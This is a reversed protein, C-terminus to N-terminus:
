SRRRSESLLKMLQEAIVPKSIFANMGADFCATREELTAGATMACIYPRRGAPGLARIARTAELGDMEPMQVDMLIVDYQQRKVALVAEIGNGAVDARYGLTDLMRLAVKQNVANDEVLLIRLPAQKALTPDLRAPAAIPTSSTDAALVRLLTDHLARLKVPKYLSAAVQGGPQSEVKHGWTTLAIVTPPRPQSVMGAAAILATRTEEPLAWDLMVADFTGDALRAHAAAPSPATAAHLGLREAMPQVMRLVCGRPSIVIVRQGALAPSPLLQGATDTGKAPVTAVTFHFTAGRGVESEVDLAGGMLEVLRRSIALGLGTGGFRRTSSADGQAFPRFLRALLEPPIGPGTDQVTFRLQIAKDEVSAVEVGVTVAGAPTFKVANGVLNVLVQRLRTVDGVIALPVEPALWYALELDKQAAQVVFLDLAEEVCPMLEFPHQELELRGSEIKSFDLIDNIVALLADGSSRITEVYERQQVDLNTEQLLTTMGIVANMPTRIEHSMNAVFSSKARNAAEATEKAAQAEEFLRANEIAIAAQDAFALLRDANQPSFFHPQASSVALLGILRGKRRIPAGLWSRIWASTDHYRWEPDAETDPIIVPQGTRVIRAFGVYEDVSFVMERLSAPDPVYFPDAVTGAIRAHRQAEDIFAVHAADHAVVASLNALIRKCVEDLNLTSSLATATKRLAEAFARESREAIEAQRRVDVEQHLAATRAAVLEELRSRHLELQYHQLVWLEMTYGVSVVFLLLYMIAVVPSADVFPGAGHSTALASWLTLALMATTVGRMGSKLALVLLVVLTLFISGLDAYFVGLLLVNLVALGGALWILERRTPRTHRLWAWVLPVILFIGAGDALMLTAITITAQSLDFGPQVIVGAWWLVAVLLPSSIATPVTCVIGVFRLLDDPREIGEPLWRLWLRYALFPQLTNISAILASVLFMQALPLQPAAVLLRTVNVAVNALAIAPLARYGLLLCGALSIGSPLWVVSLYGTPMTTFTAGFHAAAFHLAM